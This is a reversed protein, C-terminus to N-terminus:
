AALAREGYERDLWWSLGHQAAFEEVGEPLRGRPVRLTRSYDLMGHHGSIGMGGGCGPVWTRPDEALKEGLSPGFERKLLQRPILHVRRLRGDCSGAGPLSAFFCEV